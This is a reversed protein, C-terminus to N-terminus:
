KLMEILDLDVEIATTMFNPLEVMLRRYKSGRVSLLHGEYGDLNGGVIRVRAGYMEPTIEDPHFFRPLHSTRVARIFRDMDADPVVMPVCYGGRVYRYQLNGIGNVAQNLRERTEHVFLLDLMFPEEKSMRRGNKVTLRRIMPTFVEIGMEALLKYAPDKAHRRSLDRMAYWQKQTNENEGLM